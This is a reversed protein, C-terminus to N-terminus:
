LRARVQAIAMGDPRGVPIRRIEELTDLDIVAVFNDPTCSVLARHHYADMYIGAGRGTQFTKVLARTSAEYIAVAGTKVSVVMVRRGDPTFKIRHAGAMGSDITAAVARAGTDIISIVGAPTVTWLERGNPSVDFGEAGEGVPVLTQVWDMRPRAGAPMVGTPPMAPAVLKRELISVNGSGVNTTYVRQGDSGVHIMHTTDQGTGMAWEVRGTAPDLRGVAKSGQATFWLRNDVLALGHPGLLPLTDIAALAKGQGIDLVDIEHFAGYGPNSVYATRGDPSVEIEHPDPGVSIRKRVAYSVPDRVEVVHDTKSIILLVNDPTNARAQMAAALVAVALMLRTKPNMDFRQVKILPRAQRWDDIHLAPLCGHM